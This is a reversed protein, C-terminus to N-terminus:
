RDAQGFEVDAVSLEVRQGAANRVRVTRWPGPTHGQLGRLQEEVHSWQQTPQLEGSHLVSGDPDRVLWLRHPERSQYQVPFNERLLRLAEEESLSAAGAQADAALSRAAPAPAAPEHSGQQAVAGASAMLVVAQEGPMRADTQRWLMAGIGIVAVGAALRWAYRPENAAPTRRCAPELLEDRSDQNM